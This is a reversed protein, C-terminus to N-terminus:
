HKEISKMAKEIIKLAKEISKMAKEISKLAKEISKLAKEISEAACAVRSLKVIGCRRPAIRLHSGAGAGTHARKAHM